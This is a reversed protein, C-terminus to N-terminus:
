KSTPRLPCWRPSTKIDPVDGGLKTFGIFGPIRPSRPCVRMFTERAKPHRCHCGGRPMQGYPQNMTIRARYAMEMHECGSCKPNDSM